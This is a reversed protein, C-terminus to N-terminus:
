RKYPMPKGYVLAELNQYFKTAREEPTLEPALVHFKEKIDDWDAMNPWLDLGQEDMNTHCGGWFAREVYNLLHYQVSPFIAKPFIHCASHRFYIHDNKSSPAACGCQCVGVMEVQRAKFWKEKKTDDGALLKKEEAKKAKMKESEKAIPKPGAKSKPTRAAQLQQLITTDTTSM